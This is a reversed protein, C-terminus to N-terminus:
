ATDPTKVESTVALATHLEPLRQLQFCHLVEPITTERGAVKVGAICPATADQDLNCYDCIGRPLLIAGELHIRFIREVHDDKHVLSGRCLTNAVAALTATPRPLQSEIRKGSKETVERENRWLM